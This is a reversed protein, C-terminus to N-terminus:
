LSPNVIYKYTYLFKSINPPSLSSVFGVDWQGTYSQVYPFRPIRGTRPLLETSLDSTWASTGKMKRLRWISM